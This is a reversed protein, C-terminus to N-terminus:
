KLPKGQSLVLLLILKQLINVCECHKNVVNTFVLQETSLIYNLTVLYNSIKYSSRCSIMSKPTFAKKVEENMYLLHLNKDIIKQLIKLSSHYTVAVPIGKETKNYIKRNSCGLYKKMESDFISLYMTHMKLLYSTKLKIRKTIYIYIYIYIYM